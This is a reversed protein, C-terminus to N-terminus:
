AAVVKGNRVNLVLAGSRVLQLVLSALARDTSSGGGREVTITVPAPRSPASRPQAVQSLFKGVEARNFKGHFQDMIKENFKDANASMGRFSFDEFFTKGSGLAALMERAADAMKSSAMSVKPVGSAMGESLLGSIAQGSFYPNGSGSLPGTKAPSFPLFNRITQAVGSIKDRVKQIMSGIGNILGQIINKGANFLMRGVNGLAKMIRGPLGKVFGVLKGLRDRAGTWLGSVWGIVKRLMGQWFGFYLKIANWVAKAIGIMLNFYLKIGKEWLVDRIWKWVALAATKVAGWVVKWITQFWTTKTAILVIIAVLAVVALIILGIPNALMAVNLLWQVATWVATAARVVLMIGHYVKLGVNVLLIAAAISGLAIALAKVTGTNNQMWLGVSKLIPVGKGLLDFVTSAIPEIAVLGENKLKALKDQWTETETALGNITDENGSLTAMLEDIEFRGEVIAAAMDPGARAGFTEIALAMIEGQDTMGQMSTITEQLAEAPDRSDKAWKGTATRLGGMLTEMNVGEKHWKGMLAASEELSFGVGRLPAGFQVVSGALQDIGIGTTQSVRFLEDMTSAQDKTAVGWDGFVRTIKEVGVSEGTIREMNLFTETLLELDDGTAGTLTNFDALVTATDGIANPVTSAVQKFSEELGELQDGTAGTGVRITSFAEHFDGGVKALGVAAGIALGAIAVGAKGLNKQFGGLEKSAKDKALINLILSTDAAM